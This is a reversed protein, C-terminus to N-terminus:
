FGQLWVINSTCSWFWGVMVKNWNPQISKCIHSKWKKIPQDWYKGNHKNKYLSVEATPAGIAQPAHIVSKHAQRTVRPDKTLSTVSYLNLSTAECPLNHKLSTRNMYLSNFSSIATYTRHTFIVYGQLVQDQVTIRNVLTQLMASNQVHMKLSLNGRVEVWDSLQRWPPVSSLSPIDNSSTILTWTRYIKKNLAIHTM